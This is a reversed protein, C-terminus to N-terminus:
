LRKTTVPTIATVVGAIRFHRPRASRSVRSSEVIAVTTTVVSPRGISRLTHKTLRCVSTAICTSVYEAPRRARVDFLRRQAAVPAYATADINLRVAGNGDAREDVRTGCHAATHAVRALALMTMGILPMARALRMQVVRLAQVDDPLAAFTIANSEHATMAHLELQLVSTDRALRPVIQGRRLGEAGVGLWM